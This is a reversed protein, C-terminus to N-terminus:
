QYDFERYTEGEKYTNLNFRIKDGKRQLQLYNKLPVSLYVQKTFAEYDNNRDHFLRLNLTQTGSQDSTIGEDVFHYLHSLEKYQVLLIMNLYEGSLWISQIDVPDTKINGKFDSAPLPNVSLVLQCSYLQAVNGKGNEQAIPEYISITRYLTDAVLGGLGDRQLVSYITGDDAVLQSITGDNNTQAGIFETVVNPYVYDEEKCGECLFICFLLAMVIVQKM